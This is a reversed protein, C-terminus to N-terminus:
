AAAWTEQPKPLLPITGPLTSTGSPLSTDLWGRDLDRLPWRHLTITNCYRSSCFPLCLKCVHAMFSATGPLAAHVRCCAGVAVLVLPGLSAGRRM